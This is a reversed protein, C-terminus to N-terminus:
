FIYDEDEESQLKALACWSLQINNIRPYIIYKGINGLKDGKISIQSDIKYIAGYECTDTDVNILKFENSESDHSIVYKKRNVFVDLTGDEPIYKKLDIM